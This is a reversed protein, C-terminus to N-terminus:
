KTETKTKEIDALTLPIITGDKTTITLTAGCADVIRIVDDIKVLGRSVKNTATQPPCGLVSALQRGSIGAGAMVMKIKDNVAM